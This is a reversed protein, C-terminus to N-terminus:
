PRSPTSSSAGPNEILRAKRWGGLRYYAFALASACASSIPFSWWIAEAGFYHTAITALPIRVLFMTTAMILLPALTAGTARVVGTLVFMVSLLVFSWLAKENITEAIDIAASDAPLFLRLIPEHLLLIVIVPAGTAALAIKVGEGAIRDVRDWKLAGVNQAAMASVAVGVAMAPMQVYTWLINAAGYAAATHVGYRNVLAMMFIAAGSVIIMTAGMPLGRTLLAKLIVPDLRVYGWDGAQPVLPSKQRYLYVVLASLSVLQSILMATSSGAIGLRPFPGIGIILLPNLLADLAVALLSFYLPTRADGAGRQMAQFYAFMYLFPMGLFVVRLYAIASDKADAPTQLADLMRPTLVFGLVAVSLALVIFFGTSAGAVRKVQDADGAGVAQGVMLSAAMAIGFISGILLFLIINANSTATLAAEGLIHSIWIANISGNITQLINAGMVPLAFMLLSKGIPGVTLDHPAGARRPAAGPTATETM